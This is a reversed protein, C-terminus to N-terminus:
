SSSVNTWYYYLLLPMSYYRYAVCLLIFLRFMTIITGYYKGRYEALLFSRDNGDWQVLNIMFFEFVAICTHMLLPFLVVSNMKKKMTETLVVHTSRFSWFNIYPLLFIITNQQQILYKSQENLQVMSLTALISYQVLQFVCGLLLFNDYIKLM